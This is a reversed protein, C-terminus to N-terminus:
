LNYMHNIILIVRMIQPPISWKPVTKHENKSNGGREEIKEATELNQGIHMQIKIFELSPM